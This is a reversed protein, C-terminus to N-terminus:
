EWRCFGRYLPGDSGLSVLEWTSVRARRIAPRAHLPTPLVVDVLRGPALRARGELTLGNFGERLITADRGVLVRRRSPTVM